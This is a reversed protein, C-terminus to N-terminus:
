NKQILEGIRELWTPEHHRRVRETTQRVRQELASFRDQLEVRRQVSKLRGRARAELDTLRSAVQPNVRGDSGLRKGVIWGVTAVIFGAVLGSGAIAYAKGAGPAPRTITVVRPQPTLSKEGFVAGRKAADVEEANTAVQLDHERVMGQQARREETVPVAIETPQIRSGYKRAYVQTLEAGFFLIQASYYVWILLAALSGAAGYASASSGKTLYLTLLYKGITFLVATAMAGRWVDHFGIKVDPLYKFLLVFVGSYVILSLVVDLILGVVKGNGAVTQVLASLVTSIFM